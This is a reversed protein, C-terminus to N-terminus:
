KKKIMIFSISVFLIICLWVFYDGLLSYLTKCGKTPLDSYLIIENTNNYNNSSLLQGKYNFSASFGQSVSRVFNFGHEIARFSAVYTHYPTIEKWDNGPVLMIDINLKSTQNILSPFDMDFCIASCIRGYPSDFYQLNGDGYKGEGPTPKAKYFTNLVKGQPSVWIIKNEPRVNPFGKPIIQMPLGIYINDKVAQYKAKDVFVVESDGPLSIGTERGFVIKAGSLAALECNKLFRENSQIISTDYNSLNRHKYESKSSNISAIRVTPVDSNISLRIQGYLIILLLPIGYILLVNKVQTLDFDYDWIWNIISATWTIFFTVGLIGTISILQLLVLSNQTHALTGYSGSPNTSSVIFEMIVYVSPFVLTSVIGKLKQSYIRDILFTLSTFVSMMLM